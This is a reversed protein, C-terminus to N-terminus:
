QDSVTRTISPPCKLFFKTDEMNSPGFVAAEPFASKRMVFLYRSEPGTQNQENLLM